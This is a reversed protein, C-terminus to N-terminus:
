GWPEASQLNLRKNRKFMQTHKIPTQTHTCTPSHYTHSWSNTLKHTHIHAICLVAYMGHAKIPFNGMLIQAFWLSISWLSMRRVLNLSHRILIAFCLLNERHFPGGRGQILLYISNLQSSSYIVLFPIDGHKQSLSGLM